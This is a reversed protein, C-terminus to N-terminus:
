EYHLSESSSIQVATWAPYIAALICIVPVAVLTGIILWPSVSYSLEFLTFRDLFSVSVLGLAVGLAVALIGSVVGTIAGEMLLLGSIQARSMGVVKLLSFERSRTRAQVLMSNVVGISALLITMALIYDFILFDRDIESVQQWGLYLSHSSPRYYPLLPAAQTNTMLLVEGSISRAVGYQGVTTDLNNKFLTNGSSFLAYTRMNIYQGPDPYYGWRDDIAIVKFGQTIGNATITLTDGIELLHRRALTSSLIVHGPGFRSNIATDEHTHQLYLNFDHANIIRYPIISEVRPSMRMFSVGNQVMDSVDRNEFPSRTRPAYVFFQNPYLADQAWTNIESKLSETIGHLATVMSFVLVLGTISFVYRKTALKMRRATLLTEMPFLRQFFYESIRIIFNLLPQVWWLVAGTFGIVFFAEMLFFEVVTLWSQLFPRFMVYSALILPPLLWMLGSQGLRGVSLSESVFRPQLVDRIQLKLLGRVPGIVGALAILIGIFCFMILETTPIEFGSFVTRGTTTVGRRLLWGGMPVAAIAGLISGLAGMFAAEMAISSAVTSRREGVTLLLAFERQRSAVGYRMTYFVIIAGIGFAFLSAMRVALRMAQYDEEGLKKNPAQQANATEQDLAQNPIAARLSLDKDFHARKFVITEINPAVESLNRKIVGKINPTDRQKEIIQETRATNHDVVLIAGIVVMGIAVGLITVLAITRHFRLSKFALLAAIRLNM